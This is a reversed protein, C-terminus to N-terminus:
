KAGGRARIPRAPIGAYLTNPQLDRLTVSRAGLVARAGVVVDLGVFADMCIWAGPGIVIPGSVLPMAPDDFDHSAACLTARQSVRANRGLVIRAVNYCLVGPALCTGERMELNWPAWIEVSPYIHATSAIKAGFLRLIARRIGHLPPPVWRYFLHYVLAWVSRGVKNGFSLGDSGERHVRRRSKRANPTM